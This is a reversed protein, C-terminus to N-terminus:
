GARGGVKKTDEMNSKELAMAALSIKRLENPRMRKLLKMAQASARESTSALGPSRGCALAEPAIAADIGTIARSSSSSISGAPVEPPAIDQQQQGHRPQDSNSSPPPDAVVDDGDLSPLGSM